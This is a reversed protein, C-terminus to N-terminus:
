PGKKDAFVKCKRLITKANRFLQKNKEDVIPKICDGFNVKNEKVRKDFFINGRAETRCTLSGTGTTYFNTLATSSPSFTSIPKQSPIIRTTKKGDNSLVPLNIDGIIKSIEKMNVFFTSKSTTLKKEPSSDATRHFPSSALSSSKSKNHHSFASKNIPHHTPRYDDITKIETNMKSSNNNELMSLEKVENYELRPNFLSFENMTVLSRGSSLPMTKTHGRRKTSNEETRKTFNGSSANIQLAPFRDDKPFFSHDGRSTLSLKKISHGNNPSQFDGPLGKSWVKM